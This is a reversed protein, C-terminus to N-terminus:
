ADYSELPTCLRQLQLNGFLYWLPELMTILKLDPVLTCTHWRDAPVTM